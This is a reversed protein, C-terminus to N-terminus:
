GPTSVFCEAHFWGAAERGEPDLGRATVDAVAGAQEAADAFRRQLVTGPRKETKLGHAAVVEAIADYAFVRLVFVVLRVDAPAHALLRTFTAPGVYGVGGTCVITGVGALAAALAPSPDASELDEAFAADLLGARGAYTVAPESADVGLMRVDRRRRGAFYAADADALEAPSLGALAPDTYRATLGALDVSTRLLAANTGYSCCLDLVPRGDLVEEVVPLAHAPVQYGLPELARYYARPDPRTYIASFDAKTESTLPPDTV